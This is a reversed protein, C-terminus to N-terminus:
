WGGTIQPPTKDPAFVYASRTFQPVVLGGNQLLNVIRTVKGQHIEGGIEKKIAKRHDPQLWQAAHQRAENRKIKVLKQISQYQGALSSLGHQDHYKRYYAARRKAIVYVRLLTRYMAGAEKATWDINDAEALILHVLRLFGEPSGAEQEAEAYLQEIANM